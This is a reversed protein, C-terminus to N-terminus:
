LSNVQNTSTKHTVSIRTHLLLITLHLLKVVLTTEKYISLITSVEISHWNKIPSQVRFIINSLLKTLSMTLIILIVKLRLQLSFMEQLVSGRLRNTLTVVEIQVQGQTNTTAMFCSAVKMMKHYTLVPNATSSNFWSDLHTQILALRLLLILIFQNKLILNEWKLLKKIKSHM